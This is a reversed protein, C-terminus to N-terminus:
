ESVIKIIQRIKDPSMGKRDAEESIGIWPLSRKPDLVFKRQEETLHPLIDAPGVAEEELFYAPHINLAKAIKRLTDVTVSVRHNNCIDSLLGTSLDSLRALDARTMQRIELIENIKDGLTKEM